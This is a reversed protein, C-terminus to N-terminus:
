RNTTKLRAHVVRQDEADARVLPEIGHRDRPRIAPVARLRVHGGIRLEHDPVGLGAGSGRHCRRRRRQHRINRRLGCDSEHVLFVFEDVEITLTQDRTHERHLSRSGGGGVHIAITEVVDEDATRFILRPLQQQLTRIARECRAVGAQKLGVGHGLIDARQKEVCIPVFIGVEVDHAPARLVACRCGCQLVPQVQVVSMTHEALRGVRQRRLAVASRAGRSHVVVAIAIDIQEDATAAHRPAIADIRHAHQEPIVAFAVEGVHRCLQGGRKSVDAHDRIRHPLIHIAVPTRVENHHTLPHRDGDKVVRAATPQHLTLHAAELVAAPPPVADDGAIERAIALDIENDAVEAVVATQM